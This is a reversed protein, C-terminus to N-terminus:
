LDWARGDEEACGVSLRVTGEVVEVEEMGRESSM